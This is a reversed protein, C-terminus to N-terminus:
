KPEKYTWRLVEHGVVKKFRELDPKKKSYFLHSRCNCDSCGFGEIPQLDIQHSLVKAWQHELKQSIHSYWAGKPTTIESLYDVHWRKTKGSRCHRSVRSFVGGPGFASGVYIYYGRKTEMTNWRGIQVEKKQRSYLVLAYTGPESLM